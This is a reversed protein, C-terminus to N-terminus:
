DIIEADIRNKLEEINKLFSDELNVQYKDALVMISWLCDALEHSLKQDAGEINRMGEKAMIIKGLDGVDGVFGQFLEQGNWFRGYKKIELKAYKSRVEVAQRSLENFDM